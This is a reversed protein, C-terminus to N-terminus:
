WPAKLFLAALYAASWGFFPGVILGHLASLQPTNLM